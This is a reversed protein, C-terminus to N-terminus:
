HSMGYVILNLGMEYAYTSYKLCYYPNEAWEWADGLDTNWNIVVMLRGQEDSIGKVFPTYGDKEPTYGGCRGQSVNPVQVLESINYFSHFLPHSLPIDIIPRGPLVRKIESEFNAWEYTGWFDDIVLFGGAYLYRRLAKVEED